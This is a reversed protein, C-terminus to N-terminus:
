KSKPPPTPLPCPPDIKPPDEKNQDDSNGHECYSLRGEAGVVFCFKVWHRVRFEDIYDARGILISGINQQYSQGSIRIPIPIEQGPIISEPAGRKIQVGPHNLFGGPLLADQMRDMSAADDAGPTTGLLTGLPARIEVCQAITKGVNRVSLNYTYLPPVVVAPDSFKIGLWAREDIRFQNQIAVLQEHAIHAYIAAAFFAGITAACLAAQVFVDLWPSPGRKAISPQSAADPTEVSHVRPAAGSSRAGNTDAATDTGHDPGGDKRQVEIILFPKGDSNYFFIREDAM